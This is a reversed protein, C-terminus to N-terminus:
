KYEQLFKKIRAGGDKVPAKKEPHMKKIFADKNAQPDRSIAGIEKLQRMAVSLVASSYLKDLKKEV